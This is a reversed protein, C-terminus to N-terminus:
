FACLGPVSNLGIIALKLDGVVPMDVHNSPKNLDRNLQNADSVVM